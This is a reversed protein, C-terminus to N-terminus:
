SQPTIAACAWVAEAPMAAERQALRVAEADPAQYFCLMRKGDGSFFSHSHTVRHTEFCWSKSRGIASIDEFRVPSAFSRAVVVNPTVTKLGQHVTGAWFRSLDVDPDRLALRASEMDAASFRCILARGDSALFSGHWTVRYLDFCQASERGGDVVDEATLPEDFTRELVLSVTM